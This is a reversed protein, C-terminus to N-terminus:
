PSAVEFVKSARMWRGDGYHFLDGTSWSSMLWVDTIGDPLNPAVDPLPADSRMLLDCASFPATTFGPFLVVLHREGYEAARLKELNHEQASARVWDDLWTVVGNGTSVVAGGTRETARQLTVYISGPFATDSRDASVVDLGYIREVAAAFEPGGSAREVTRLLGPLENKLRKARCKPTVTVMWGGLLDQEIWREDSGNILNWLEISEADAAATVECAAFPVDGRALDLDYMSPRSGDDHQFVKVGPLAAEICAGVWREEGRLEPM